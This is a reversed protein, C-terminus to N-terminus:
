KARSVDYGVMFLGRELELPTCKALDAAAILIRCARWMNRAHIRDRGLKPFEFRGVNPDRLGLKGPTQFDFFAFRLEDPLASPNPQWYRMAFLALAAGVRGDYISLKRSVDAFAYVKTMASNMPLREGFHHEPNDGSRLLSAARLVEDVLNGKQRASRLWAVSANENGNKKRGVGGWKLTQLCADHFDGPAGHSSAMQDRCEDSTWTTRTGQKRHKLIIADWAYQKAADSLSSCSWEGPRNSPRNQKHWDVWRASSGHRSPMSFSHSFTQDWCKAILQAIAFEHETLVAAKDEVSLSEHM